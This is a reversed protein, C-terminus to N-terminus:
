AQQRAKQAGGHLTHLAYQTYLGCAVLLSQPLLDFCAHHLPLATAPVAPDTTGVLGYFGPCNNLFEAFNDGFLMRPITVVRGEGVVEAAVATTEALLEPPNILAPTIVEVMLEAKAGYAEAMSQAIKQISQLVKQRIEPTFCRVTGQLQANQAVINYATGANLTGIGVVVEHQPATQRAVVAQLGTAIQAAVYLADVGLHPAAVHAGVGTIQLVFKDVSAFTPGPVLAVSGVPVGPMMHVGFARSAGQLVGAAVFDEAGRGIEEGPQFAFRVEGAFTPALRALARAAGLLSATHGDHGCAHMVGASRSGYPRQEGEQIPLADIDARLVVCPGGGLGGHLIGLVGTEGIRRHAIGAAALEREITEATAFEQMSLEPNQHFHERLAVLYEKQSEVAAPIPM